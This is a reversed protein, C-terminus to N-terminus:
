LIRTDGNELTKRAAMQGSRIPHCLLHASQHLSPFVVVLPLAAFAMLILPTLFPHQITWCSLHYEAPAEFHPFVHSYKYVFAM